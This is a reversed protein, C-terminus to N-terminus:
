SYFILINPDREMLEGITPYWGSEIEGTEIDYYAMDEHNDSDLKMVFDFVKKDHLTIKEPWGNRIKELAMGKTIFNQRVQEGIDYLDYEHYEFIYKKNNNKVLLEEKQFLYKELQTKLKKISIQTETIKNELDELSMKNKFVYFFNFIMKLILSYM